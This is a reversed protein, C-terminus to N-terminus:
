CVSCVGFSSLLVLQSEYDFKDCLGYASSPKGGQDTIFEEGPCAQIKPFLGSLSELGLFFRRIWWVRFVAPRFMELLFRIRLLGLTNKWLDRFM